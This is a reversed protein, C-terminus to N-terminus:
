NKGIYIEQIKLIDDCIFYNFELIHYLRLTKTTYFAFFDIIKTLIM